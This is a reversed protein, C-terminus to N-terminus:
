CRASPPAARDHHDHREEHKVRLEAQDAGILAGDDDIGPEDRGERDIQEGGEEAGHGLLQELRGVDVPGAVEQNQQLDNQRKRKGGKDRQHHDIREVDPVVQQNGDDEQLLIGLAGQHGADAHELAAVVVLHRQGHGAHHNGARGINM